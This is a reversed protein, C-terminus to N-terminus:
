LRRRVTLRVPACAPRTVQKSMNSPRKRAGTSRATFGIPSPRRRVPRVGSWRVSTPSTRATAAATTMAM